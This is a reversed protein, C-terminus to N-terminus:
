AIRQEFVVAPNEYEEDFGALDDPDNPNGVSQNNLNSTSQM